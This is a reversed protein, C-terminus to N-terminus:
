DKPNERALDRRRRKPTPRAPSEGDRLVGRPNFILWQAFELM